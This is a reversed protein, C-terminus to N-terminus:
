DWGVRRRGWALAADHFRRQHARLTPMGPPVPARCSLAWMGALSLLLGSVAELDVGTLGGGASVVREPDVGGYVLPDLAFLLLDIWAAGRCAWPWDVFVVRGGPELLINDARLDLHLLTDGALASGPGLLRQGVDSLRGLNRREWPDLDPPPDTALRTWTTLDEALLTSVPLVDPVPCPTLERSLGGVATAVRGATEFTWPLAPVRGPSADFVLVVWDGDDHAFRFQPVPATAPLQAAIRAEARHLLPTGANQGLSVAKAFATTGDACWLRAAAGPSFGGDQSVARVVPSGLREDVIARIDAPVSEWPLRPSGPVAVATMRRHNGSSSTSLLCM